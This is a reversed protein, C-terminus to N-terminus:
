ELDARMAHRVELGGEDIWERIKEYEKGQESEGFKEHHELDDWGSFLVFIDTEGGDARTEKEVQWGAAIKRESFHELHHKNDDFAEEFTANDAPKIVHRRIALVPADLPILSQDLEVHVVSQTTVQGKFLVGLSQAEPSGVFSEMHMSRSPWSGIVYLLSPDEHQTYFHFQHTTQRAPTLTIHTPNSAPFNDSVNTSLDNSFQELVQKAKLLTTRLSANTIDVGPSLKLLALETVTM